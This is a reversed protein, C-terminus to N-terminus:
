EAAAPGRWYRLNHPDLTKKPEGKCEGACNPIFMSISSLSQTDPSGASVERRSKADLETLRWNVGNKGPNANPSLTGQLTEAYLLAELRDKNNLRRGSRRAGIEQWRRPLANELASYLTRWYLTARHAARKPHFSGTSNFVPPFGTIGAPQCRHRSRIPKVPKSSTRTQRLAPRHPSFVCREPPFALRDKVFPQVHWDHTHRPCKDANYPCRM